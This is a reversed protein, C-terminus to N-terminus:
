GGTKSYMGYLGAATQFLDGIMQNRNQTNVNELGGQTNLVSNAAQTTGTAIQSQQGSTNVVQRGLNTAGALLNLGTKEVDTRANNAAGAEAKAQDIRSATDLAAITSPDVGSAMLQRSADQRNRDFQTTVGSVANDAATERRQATDYNLATDAFKQEIPKWTNLYSQWQDESRASAKGQEALLNDFLQNFRDTDVPNSLADGGLVAATGTGVVKALNGFGNANSITEMVDAGGSIASAVAPNASMTTALETSGTAALIKDYVSTQAGTMANASNGGTYAADSYLASKDVSALSGGSASAGADAGAIIQDTGINSINSGLSSLGDIAGLSEASLTGASSLSGATGGTGGGVASVTDLGRGAGSSWAASTASDAGTGAASYQSAATGLVAPLVVHRAFGGLESEGSSTGVYNGQEDWVDATDNGGWTSVNRPQYILTKGTQPDRSVTAGFKGPMSWQNIDYRQGGADGTTEGYQSGNDRLALLAKLQDATLKQGAKYSTPNTNIAM